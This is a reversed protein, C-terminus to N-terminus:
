LLEEGGVGDFRSDSFMGSDLILPARRADCDVQIGRLRPNDYRRAVGSGEGKKRFPMQLSFPQFSAPQPKSKEPSVSAEKAHDLEKWSNDEFQHIMRLDNQHETARSDMDDRLNKVQKKMVRWLEYDDLDGGEDDGGGRKEEESRHGAIALLTAVFAEKLYAFSFDATIGAIAPCLKKPFKIAPKSALRNRWYECYLVRESTSPLPFLYKRDFRSPRSSLGPDLQDLHNTSAVMFIGDNNETQPLPNTSISQPSPIPPLLTGLGDVENFFYSRTSPTVITDIDEFILLCPAMYRAQQFVARINYTYPAAKVYLSPIIDGYKEYLTHM